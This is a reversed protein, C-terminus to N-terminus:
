KADLFRFSDLFKLCGIKVSNYKELPEALIDDEKIKINEGTVIIIIKEFNQHYDYGACNNTCTFCM